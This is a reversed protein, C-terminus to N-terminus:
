KGMPNEKGLGFGEYLIKYIGYGALGWAGAKAWKGKGAIAMSSFIVPLANNSFSKLVGTIFGKIRGFIANLPNNMRFDAVQKQIMLTSPCPTSSTRTDAIVSEYTDASENFSTRASQKKGLVYTDYLVASMGAAGATKCVIKSALGM